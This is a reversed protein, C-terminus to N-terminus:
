KDGKLKNRKAYVEIAQRVFAANLVAGKEELEEAIEALEEKTSRFPRLAGYIELVRKDSFGTLEAARRLNAAMQRNKASEAIQAQYELTQSSIRCDDVTVDGLLVSEMTIDEIKKGTPTLILEPRKDALPYDKKSDLKKLYAM